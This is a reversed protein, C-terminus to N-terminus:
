FVFLNFMLTQYLKMLLTVSRGMVKINEKSKTANIETAKRQGRPIHHGMFDIVGMPFSEINIFFNTINKLRNVVVDWKHENTSLVSSIQQYTKGKTYSTTTKKLYSTGHFLYTERLKWNKHFIQLKGGCSFKVMYFLTFNPCLKLKM